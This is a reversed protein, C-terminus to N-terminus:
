VALGLATGAGPGDLDFLQTVGTTGTLQVLDTFAELGQGGNIEGIYTNGQYSFAVVGNNAAPDAGGQFEQEVLQIAALLSTSSNIATALVSGQTVVGNSISTSTTQIIGSGFDIVDATATLSFTDDANNLVGDPGAARTISGVAFSTVTEVGTQAARPADGNTTVNVTDRAATTETLIIADVGAGGNIIDAGEGGTITDNGGGGSLSDVGAGGSIVDNGGGASVVDNGAGGTVVVSRGGTLATANVTLTEAGTVDDATGFVGDVGAGTAVGARLGAGNIALTNGTIPNLGDTFAADTVNV